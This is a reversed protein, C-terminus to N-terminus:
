SIARRSQILIPVEVQIVGGTYNNDWKATVVVEGQLVKMGMPSLGNLDTNRRLIRAIEWLAKEIDKLDTSRELIEHYYRIYLLLDMRNTVNQKGITTFKEQWGDFIVAIAPVTPIVAADHDYIDVVRAIYTFQQESDQELERRIVAIINEVADTFYNGTSILYETNRDQIPM